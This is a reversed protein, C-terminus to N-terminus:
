LTEKCYHSHRRTLADCKRRVTLPTDRGTSPGSMVEWGCFICSYQNTVLESMADVYSPMCVGYLSIHIVIVTVYVFYDLVTIKCTYSFSAECWLFATLCYCYLTNNIDYLAMSVNCLM